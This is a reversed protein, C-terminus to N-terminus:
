GGTLAMPYWSVVVAQKGKYKSLKYTKGDSGKMEWDPAKDGVKLKKPKKDAAKAETSQASSSSSMMAIALCILSIFCAFTKM